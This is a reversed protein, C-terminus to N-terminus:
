FFDTVMKADRAFPYALHDIIGFFVIFNRSCPVQSM